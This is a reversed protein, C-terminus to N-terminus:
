EKFYTLLIEKKHESLAVEPFSGHEIYKRLFGKVEAEKALLDANRYYQVRDGKTTPITRQLCQIEEKKSRLGFM